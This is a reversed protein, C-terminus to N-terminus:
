QKQETEESEDVEKGAVIPLQKLPESYLQQFTKIQTALPHLSQLMM